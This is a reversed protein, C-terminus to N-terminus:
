VIYQMLSFPTKICCSPIGSNTLCTCTWAEPDKYILINCLISILPNHTLLLPVLIVDSTEM